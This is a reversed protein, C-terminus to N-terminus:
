LAAFIATLDKCLSKAVESVCRFEYMPALLTRLVKNKKMEAAM